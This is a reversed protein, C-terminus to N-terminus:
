KKETGGTGAHNATLEDAIKLEELSGDLSFLIFVKDVSVFSFYGKSLNETKRPNWPPGKIIKQKGAM